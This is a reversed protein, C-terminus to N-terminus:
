PYEPDADDCIWTQNVDLEGTPRNFNFTAPAPGSTTGNFTCDYWFTGYFFDELQDSAASCSAVVDPVAPNSLNFNVYGWSNQHAPTSFVYSAHYDFDEVTWEFSHFSIDSCCASSREVPKGLTAQPIVALLSAAVLSRYM